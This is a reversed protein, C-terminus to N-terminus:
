PTISNQIKFCSLDIIQKSSNIMDLESIGCNETQEFIIKVVDRIGHEYGKQYIDIENIMISEEIKDFILYSSLSAM